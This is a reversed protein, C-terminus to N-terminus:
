SSRASVANSSSGIARVSTAIIRRVADVEADPIPHLADWRERGTWLSGIAAVSAESAGIGGEEFHLLDDFWLRVMDRERALVRFGGEGDSEAVIMHISNTGCDIAAIRM